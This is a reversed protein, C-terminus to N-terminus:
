PNNADRQVAVFYTVGDIDVVRTVKWEIEFESGDKRYNITRGHFTDDKKLADELEDLVARETKEGQLLGPTQGLVEERAYGTLETFQDNVYVIESGGQDDTARTVMVSSFAIKALTTFLPSELVNTKDDMHVTRSKFTGGGYGPPTSIGAV